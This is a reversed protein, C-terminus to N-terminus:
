GRGITATRASTLRVLDAPALEIELGRKGASCFVTEYELASEDIM